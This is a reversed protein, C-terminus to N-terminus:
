LEAFNLFQVHLGFRTIKEWQEEGAQSVTLLGPNEEKIVLFVNADNLQEGWPAPKSERYAASIPVAQRKNWRSNTKYLM